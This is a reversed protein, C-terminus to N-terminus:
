PLFALFPVPNGYDLQYTLQPTSSQHIVVCVADAVVIVFDIALILLEMCIKLRKIMVMVGPFIDQSKKKDKRRTFEERDV